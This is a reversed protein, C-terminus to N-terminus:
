ICCIYIHLFPNGIQYSLYKCAVSWPIYLHCDNTGSHFIRELVLKEEPFPHLKWSSIDLTANVPSVYLPVTELAIELNIKPAANGLISGAAGSTFDDMKPAEFRRPDPKTPSLKLSFSGSIFRGRFDTLPLPAWCLPYHSKKSVGWVVLHLISM